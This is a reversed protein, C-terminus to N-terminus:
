SRLLSRPSYPPHTHTHTKKGITYGIVCVASGGIKSPATFACRPEQWGALRRPSRRCKCLWGELLVLVLVQLTNKSPGCNELCPIVLIIAIAAKDDANPLDALRRPIRTSTTGALFFIVLNVDMRSVFHLAIGCKPECPLFRVYRQRWSHVRHKSYAVFLSSTPAQGGEVFASPGPM